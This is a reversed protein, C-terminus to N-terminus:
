HNIQNMLKKQFMQMKQFKLNMLISRYNLKKLFKLNMQM